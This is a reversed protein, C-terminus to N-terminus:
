EGQKNKNEDFIKMIKGLYQEAIHKEKFYNGLEYKNDDSYYGCEETSIIKGDCDIYFYREGFNVRDKEKTKFKKNILEIIKELYKLEKNKILHPIKCSDHINLVLVNTLFGNILKNNFNTYDSVELCYKNDEGDAFFTPKLYNFVNKNIYKLFWSSYFDNIKVIEIELVKEKM